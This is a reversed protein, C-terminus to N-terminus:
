DLALLLGTVVGATISLISWFKVWFAISKVNKAIQELTAGGPVPVSNEVPAPAPAPEAVPTEVVKKEIEGTAMNYGCKPCKESAISGM